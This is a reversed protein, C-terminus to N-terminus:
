DRRADGAHGADITVGADPPADEDFMNKVAALIVVIAVVAVPAVVVLLPSIGPRAKVM